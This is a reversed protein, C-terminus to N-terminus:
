IRGVAVPVAFPIKLKWVEFIGHRRQKKNARRKDAYMKPCWWIEKKARVLNSILSYVLDESGLSAGPRVVPNGDDDWYCDQNKTETLKRVSYLVFIQNTPLFTFAQNLWEAFTDRSIFQLRSLLVKALTGQNEDFQSLWDKIQPSADIQAPSLSKLQRKLSTM